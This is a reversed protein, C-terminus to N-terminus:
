GSLESVHQALRDAQPSPAGYVTYGPQVSGDPPYASHYSLLWVDQAAPEVTDLLWQDVAQVELESGPGAGGSGPIIGSTRAADAQWDDTPWNRNLDVQNANTRTGAALGDPNLAPLFYLTFYPPVSGPASVYQKM